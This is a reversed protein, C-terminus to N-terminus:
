VTVNERDNEEDTKTKRIGLKSDRLRLWRIYM